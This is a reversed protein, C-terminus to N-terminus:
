THIPEKHWRELMDTIKILPPALSSAEKELNQFDQEFEM